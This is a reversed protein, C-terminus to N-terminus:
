KQRTEYAPPQEDMGCRPSAEEWRVVWTCFLRSLFPTYIYVCSFWFGGGPFVDM